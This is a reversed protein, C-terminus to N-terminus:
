QAQCARGPRRRAGRRRAGRRTLTRRGTEAAVPLLLPLAGAVPPVVPREGALSLREALSPRRGSVVEAEAEAEPMGAARTSAMSTGRRRAGGRPAPPIGPPARSARAPQLPRTHAPRADSARAESRCM